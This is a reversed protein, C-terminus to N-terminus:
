IIATMTQGVWKCIRGVGAIHSVWVRNNEEWQYMLMSHVSFHSIKLM